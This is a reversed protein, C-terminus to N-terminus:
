ELAVNDAGCIDWIDLMVGKLQDVAMSDSSSEPDLFAIIDRALAIILHSTSPETIQVHLAQIKRLTFAAFSHPNRLETQSVAQISSLDFTWSDGLEYQGKLDRYLHELTPGLNLLSSPKPKATM